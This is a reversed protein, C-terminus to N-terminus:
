GIFINGHKKYKKVIGFDRNILGCKLCKKERVQPNIKFIHQCLNNKIM